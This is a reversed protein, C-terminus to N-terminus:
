ITITYFESYTKADDVAMILLYPFHGIIKSTYGNKPSM